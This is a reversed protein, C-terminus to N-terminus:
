NEVILVHSFGLASAIAKLADEIASEGGGHISDITIGANEIANGIAASEKHYGYGGAKGHGGSHYGPANIWISAYVTSANASRGMYCRATIINVLGDTIVNYVKILEKKDGYNIANNVAEGLTANM